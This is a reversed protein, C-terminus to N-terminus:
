KEEGDKSLEVAIDYITSIDSAFVKSAKKDLTIIKGDMIYKDIDRIFFKKSLSYDINTKLISKM